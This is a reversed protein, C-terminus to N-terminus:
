FLLDEDYGNRGSMPQPEDALYNGFAGDLNSYPDHSTQVEDEDEAEGTNVEGEGRSTGNETSDPDPLSSRSPLPPPPKTAIGDPLPPVPVSPSKQPEIPGPGPIKFDTPPLLASALPVLVARSHANLAISDTLAKGAAGRIFTQL